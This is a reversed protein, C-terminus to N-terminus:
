TRGSGSRALGYVGVVLFVLGLVSLAVTDFWLAGFADLRATGEPDRPDFLVRVSQGPRYGFILGGQPYSVRTGNPTTFDIQPHSGGANLASVVGPVVVASRLFARTRGAIMAAITLLLVGIVGAVMTKM